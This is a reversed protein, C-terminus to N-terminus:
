IHTVPNIKGLILLMSCLYKSQGSSILHSGTLQHLSGLLTVKSRRSSRLEPLVFCTKQGQMKPSAQKIGPCKRTEWVEGTVGSSSGPGFLHFLERRSERSCMRTSVTILIPSQDLQLRFGSRWFGVQQQGQQLPPTKNQCWPSQISFFFLLCISFCAQPKQLLQLEDGRGASSDTSPSAPPQCPREASSCAPAVSCSGRLLSLVPDPCGPWPAGAPSTPVM